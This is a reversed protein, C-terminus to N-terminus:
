PCLSRWGDNRKPRRSFAPYFYTLDRPSGTQLFKNEVAKNLAEPICNGVFGCTILTDGDKVLDAAQEATMIIVKRM